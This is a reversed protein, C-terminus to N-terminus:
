IVLGVGFLFVINHLWGSVQAPPVPTLVDTPFPTVYDRAEVRFVLRKGAHFKIGAGFDVMPKWQTTKTLVALTSLPQSAHETGTGQYGKLGGGLAVFPRVPSKAKNLHFLLDYGFTHSRGAFAVSTGGSSLALEHQQYLYRFEGGLRGEKSQGLYAGGGYGMNLGLDGSTSGSTVPQKKTFSGGGLGGFEWQQASLQTAAFVCVFLSLLVFRTRM